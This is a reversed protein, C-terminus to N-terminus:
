FGDLNIHIQEIKDVFAFSQTEEQINETPSELLIMNKSIFKIWVAELSIEFRLLHSFNAITLHKHKREPHLEAPIRKSDYWSLLRTPETTDREGFKSAQMQKIWIKQTNKGSEYDSDDFNTYLAEIKANM